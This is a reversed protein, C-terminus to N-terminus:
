FNTMKLIIVSEKKISFHPVNSRCLPEDLFSSDKPFLKEKGNEAFHKSLFILYKKDQVKENRSAM